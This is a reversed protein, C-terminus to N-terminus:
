FDIGDVDMVSPATTEDMIEDGGTGVPQPEIGMETELCTVYRARIRWESTRREAEEAEIDGVLIALDREVAEVKMSIDQVSSNAQWTKDRILDRADQNKGDWGTAPTLGLKCFELDQALDRRVATLEARRQYLSSLTAM